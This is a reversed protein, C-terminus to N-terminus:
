LSGEDNAINSVSLLQSRLSLGTPAIHKLSILPKIRNNIKIFAIMGGSHIFSEGDGVLLAHPQSTQFQKIMIPDQTSLYIVHCSNPQIDSISSYPIFTAQAPKKNILARLTNSIDSSAESCFNFKQNSPAFAGWTTLFAFRFLYVAKLNHDQINQTNAKLAFSSIPLALLLILCVMMKYPLRYFSSLSSSAQAKIIPM